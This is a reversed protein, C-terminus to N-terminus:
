AGGPTRDRMFGGSRGHRVATIESLIALATEEASKGGIDLGIPGHIRQLDSEAFGQERLRAFREAQTKRSGIAGIYPVPTRLVHHLTPDDFKSDHSLLVVYTSEDLRLKPLVDQPWGKVIRDAAPFREQSAFAARADAVVVRYGLAKAFISLPIAAHNAGVILLQPPSPYVDVFVEFQGEPTDYSRTEPSGIAFLAVADRAVSEALVDSGFQGETAGDRSVLLKAGVDSPGAVITAIAVPHGDDLHQRFRDYLSMSSGFYVGM